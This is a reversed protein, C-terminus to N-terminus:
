KILIMKKTQVFNGARLEYFYTGSPLNNANFNIEYDGASQYKNVLETIERGRM